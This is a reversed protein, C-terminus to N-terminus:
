EKQMEYITHNNIYNLASEETEESRVFVDTGANIENKIRVADEYSHYVDPLVSFSDGYQWEIVVVFNSKINMPPLQM